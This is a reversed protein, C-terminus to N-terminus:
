FHKMKYLKSFNQRKFLKDVKLLRQQSLSVTATLTLGLLGEGIIMM